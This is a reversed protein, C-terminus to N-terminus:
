SFTRIKIRFRKAEENKRELNFRNKKKMYNYM